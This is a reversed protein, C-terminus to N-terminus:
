TLMSGNLLERRPMKNLAFVMLVRAMDATKRQEKAARDEIQEKLETPVRIHMVVTENSTM